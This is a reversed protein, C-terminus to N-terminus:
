YLQGVSVPFSLTTSEWESLMDASIVFLTSFLSEDKVIIIPVVIRGIKWTGTDLWSHTLHQPQYLCVLDLQGPIDFEEFGQHHEKLSVPM